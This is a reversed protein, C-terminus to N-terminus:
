FAISPLAAVSSILDTHPEKELQEKTHAGSLVGVIVRAGANRGAQLDLVTDGVCMVERVSTVGTAEMSHFILYPAPRGLAVDDGCIIADAVGTKWGAAAIILDTTLRDFGTNLAIRIGRGRLWAFTDAAGAVPKVGGANFLRALCDRYFVTTELAGAKARHDFGDVLILDYTTSVKRVFEVGDGIRIDIRREDTPMAFQDRAFDPIRPDIEVVTVKAHPLRRYLFKVLSAAGLGILLVERPWLTWDKWLLCALMERTYELELADPKRIRMAGQVWDSGFHLHRVGAEESVDLSNAPQKRNLM